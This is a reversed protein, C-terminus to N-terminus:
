KKSFSSDPHKSDWANKINPSTEKMLINARGELHVWEKAMICKM